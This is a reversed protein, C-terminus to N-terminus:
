SLCRGDGRGEDVVGCSLERNAVGLKVESFAEARALGLRVRECAIEVEVGACALAFAGLMGAPRVEVPALGDCSTQELAIGQDCIRPGSLM